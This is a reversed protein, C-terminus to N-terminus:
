KSAPKAALANDVMASVRKLRARIQRVVQEVAKVETRELRTMEGQEIDDLGDRIKKLRREVTSVYARDYADRLTVKGKVYRRLIRPKNIVTPLQDRLEQANFSHEKIQGLLADKLESNKEVEARIARNTLVVEYHSFHSQEKDGNENMLKIVRVWKNIMTMSMGSLRHLESRERQQEEVWRFCFLAKQYLSWETRGHLHAQALLRTQQEETLRDVVFCRINAWREDKSDHHLKRYAALRSNGEIVQLTDHRVVVPEQLGGDRKIEPILKNVSPEKLLQAYIREQKESPTLDDFGPMERIAAAVRPNDPFFLLRDIPTLDLTARVEQGMIAITTEDGAM